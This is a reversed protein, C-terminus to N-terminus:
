ESRGEAAVPEVATWPSSWHQRSRIVGEVAREPTALLLVLAKAETECGWEDTQGDTLTWLVQWESRVKSGEPLLRGAEALEDLLQARIVERVAEIQRRASRLFSACAVCDWVSLRCTSMHLDTKAAAREEESLGTFQVLEALDTM